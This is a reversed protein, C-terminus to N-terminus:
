GQGAGEGRTPDAQIATESGGNTKGSTDNEGRSILRATELSYLPGQGIGECEESVEEWAGRSKLNEPWFPFTRCQGPRVPYVTCGDDYFICDGNPEEVLSRRRGVLRVYRRVFEDGSLGLFEALEDCEARTLWVYGPAGTCCVGCQTCEFRLGDTYWATGM